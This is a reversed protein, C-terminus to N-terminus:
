SLMTKLSIITGIVANIEMSAGNEVIAKNEVNVDADVIAGKGIISIM